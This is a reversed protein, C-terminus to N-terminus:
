ENDSNTFCYRLGIPADYVRRCLLSCPHKRVEAMRAALARSMTPMAKVNDLKRWGTVVVALMM